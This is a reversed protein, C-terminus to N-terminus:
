HGLDDRRTRGAGCPSAARLRRTCGGRARGLPDVRSRARGVRRPIGRLPGQSCSNLYTTHALIPFEGRIGAGLKSSAVAVSSAYALPSSDAGEVDWPLHDFSAVISNWTVQSNM